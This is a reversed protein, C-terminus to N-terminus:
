KILEPNLLATYESDASLVKSYVAIIIDSYSKNGVKVYDAKFGLLMGKENGLSSFPILRLRSVWGSEKVGLYVQELDDERKEDFVKRLGEPMIEKVASYEVIIVPYRTIPDFLDNGTDMLGRLGVEKGEIGISFDMCLSRKELYNYLPIVCLMVFAFTILGAGILISPSVGDILFIGGVSTTGSNTLYFLGFVAGGLIFSVLYFVSLQKIFGRVRSPTFAVVIILFSLLVKMVVSYLVAYGPFFLLLAYLAGIIAAAFFKVPKVKTKIIRSTLWIIIYNMIINEALLVDVYVDM